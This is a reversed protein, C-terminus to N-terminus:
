SPLSQYFHVLRQTIGRNDYLDEILERANEGMRNDESNLEEVVAQAFAEPTDAIRINHKDSFEIGEAGIRTSVIRKELAMGEIIKIRIGGASHIPVVMVKHEHMFDTADDVEGVVCIGPQDTGPLDTPMKRGALFMEADPEQARVLPWVEELFWLMGELNPLWDMSGLHFVSKKPATQNRPYRELDIGFPLLNIAGEYGLELYKDRDDGSIALIGDIRPLVSLEYDKLKGSLYKLYSRKARNRTGLAVREWIMYELNHSRLVIPAKSFRRCTKIYPTMFVSELHIIDVKNRRLYRALLMDFDPSFFRSINYSDSTVLASFADVLNIKTDVFVGEIGTREVYGQPFVNPDFPHKHTVITLLKMKHGAELLGRTVTNM